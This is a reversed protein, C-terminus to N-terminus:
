DLNGYDMDGKGFREFYSRADASCKQVQDRLYKGKPIQPEALYIRQWDLILRIDNERDITMDIQHHCRDRFKEDETIIGLLHAQCKQLSPGWPRSLYRMFLDVGPPLSEGDLRCFAMIGIRTLTRTESATLLDFVECLEEEATELLSTYKKMTPVDVSLPTNQDARHKLEYPIRYQVVCKNHEFSYNFGGKRAVTLNMPKDSTVHVDAGWKRLLPRLTEIYDQTTHFTPKIECGVTPTAVVHDLWTVTDTM